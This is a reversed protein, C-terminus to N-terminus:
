SIKVIVTNSKIAKGVCILYQEYTPMAVFHGSISGNSNHPILYDGANGGNVNVPVQGCFAIRDVKSRAAEFRSAYAVDSEGEDQNVSWTDGGVYSPDTSKIVFTVAESFKDTLLGDSDIGCIDGKAIEGCSTSKIMYEAYDAGSANVTGGANISRSTGSDQPVRLYSFASSGLAGTVAFFQGANGTSGRIAAVQNGANNAVVAALEHYATSTNVGAHIIGNADINIVVAAAEDTGEYLLAGSTGAESAICAGTNSVGLVADATNTSFRSASLENLTAGSGTNAILIHKGFNGGSGITGTSFGTVQASYSCGISLPDNPSNTYKYDFTNFEFYVNQSNFFDAGDLEVGQLAGDCFGGMWKTQIGNTYLNTEFGSIRVNQLETDNGSSNGATNGDLRIGYSGAWTRAGNIFNEIRCNEFTHRYNTKGPFTADDMFVRAFQYVDRHHMNRIKVGSSEDFSAVQVIDFMRPHHGSAANTQTPRGGDWTHQAGSISVAAGGSFNLDFRAATAITHVEFLAKITIQNFKYVVNSPWIVFSDKSTLIAADYTAQIVSTNAAADSSIEGFQLINFINDSNRRLVLSLTPVGTAQVINFTNETVTSSLVVDWFAGGGNGDTREAINLADGDVLNINSVALALTPFNKVVANDTAVANVPDAEWIQVDNKDTLRVKYNGDIFIDSFVGNSNAIVPNANPTAGVKDSFTNRPNSTGADFFFLKAGDEPTIGSGADFFPAIFRNAM